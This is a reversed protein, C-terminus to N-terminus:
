CLVDSEEEKKRGTMLQAESGEIGHTDGHTVAIPFDGSAGGM